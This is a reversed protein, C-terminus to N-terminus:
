LPERGSFCIVRLSGISIAEIDLNWHRLCNENQSPMGGGLDLSLQWEAEGDIRSFFYCLLIVKKFKVNSKLYIKRIHSCVLALMRGFDIHM